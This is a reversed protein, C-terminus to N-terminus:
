AEPAVLQPVLDTPKSVGRARVIQCYEEWEAHTLAYYGTTPTALQSGNSERTHRVTRGTSPLYVDPSCDPAPADPAEQWIVNGSGGIRPDYPYLPCKDADAEARVDCIHKFTDADFVRFWILNEHTTTKM